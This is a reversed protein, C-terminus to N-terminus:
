ANPAHRAELRDPADGDLAEGSPGTFKELMKESILRDFAFQLVEAKTKLQVISHSVSETKGGRQGDLTARLYTNLNSLPLYLHALMEDFLRNPDIQLSSNPLVQDNSLLLGQNGTAPKTFLAMANGKAEKLRLIFQRMGNALTNVMLTYGKIALGRIRMCFDPVNFIQKKMTVDSCIQRVLKAFDRHLLDELRDTRASSFRVRMAGSHMDISRLTLEQEPEGHLTIVIQDRQDHEVTEELM